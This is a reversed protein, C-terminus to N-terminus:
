NATPTGCNFAYEVQVGMWVPPLDMAPSPGRFRVYIKDEGALVVAHHKFPLGNFLTNSLNEAATRISPMDSM